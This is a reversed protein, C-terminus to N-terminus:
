AACREGAQVTRVVDTDSTGSLLGFLGSSQDQLLFSPDVVEDGPRIELEGAQSGRRLAAVTDGVALAATAADGVLARAQPVEQPRGQGTLTWSRMTLDPGPVDGFLVVLAGDGWELGRLRTGPCVGYRGASGVVGTDLTPEGLAARLAPVVQAVPDGFVLVAQGTDIGDGFLRVASPAPDPRSSATATATPTTGATGTATPSPSSPQAAAPQDGDDDDDGCAAPLGLLLASALVTVSRRIRM